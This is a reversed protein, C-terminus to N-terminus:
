VESLYFYSTQILRVLICTNSATHFVITNNVYLSPQNACYYGLIYPQSYVENYYGDLIHTVNFVPDYFTFIATQSDATEVLSQTYCPGIFLQGQHQVYLCSGLDTTSGTGLAIVSQIRLNLTHISGAVVRIIVLSETVNLPDGTYVQVGIRPPLLASIDLTSPPTPNDLYAYSVAYVALTICVAVVLLRELTRL